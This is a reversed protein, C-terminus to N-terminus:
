IFVSAAPCKSCGEIHLMLSGLIIKFVTSNTHLINSELDYVTFPFIRVLPSKAALEVVVDELQPKV